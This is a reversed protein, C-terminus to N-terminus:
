WKVLVGASCRRDVNSTDSLTKNIQQLLENPDFDTTSKKDVSFDTTEAIQYFKRGMAGAQTKTQSSTSRLSKKFVNQRLGQM